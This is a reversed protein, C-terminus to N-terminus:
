FDSDTIFNLTYKCRTYAVYLLNEEQQKEWDKLKRRSPTPPLIYVHDCELGKSKHMTSFVFGKKDNKFIKEIAESVESMNTCENEIKILNIVGIKEEMLMYAQSDQIEQISMGPNKVKIKTAIKQLERGAWKMFDEPLDTKSKDILRILNLGIDTGRVFAKKGQSLFDLCGRVLPLTNRCLIFNDEQVDKISFQRNVQGEPLGDFAELHSLFHFKAKVYEVVSKSCRYTCSLPMETMNPIQRIKEFSEADAGSFGYISQFEDGVYVMRGGPRLLKKVIIQQAVNLDQAEDVFVWQFQFPTISDDVAPFYIMDTFDIEQKKERSIKVIEIAKEVEGNYTDIGYKEAVIKVESTTKCVNVRILDALTKVNEVVDFFDENDIDLWGNKQEDLINRIKREVLKPRGYAKNVASMGISHVTNVQVNELHAVRTKLEEVIAKNFAIFAVRQTKPIFELCNVITTTKGSGAVAGIALHGKGFQIHDYINLQLKSPSHKQDTKM